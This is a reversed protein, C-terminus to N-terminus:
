FKVSVIIKKSRNLRVFHKNSSRNKNREIPTQAIELVQEFKINMRTKHFSLSNFNSNNFVITVCILKVGFHFLNSEIKSLFNSKRGFKWNEVFLEIKFYVKRAFICNEVFVEVKSFFISKRFFKWNELVVEIKAFCNSKGFFKSKPCYIEIKSLFLEIKAFFNSKGFFISKPCYIEIKSLLFDIKSLFM